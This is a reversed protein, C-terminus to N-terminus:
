RGSKSAVAREIYAAAYLIIAYLIPRVVHWLSPPRGDDMFKEVAFIGYGMLPFVIAYCLVLKGLKHKPLPPIYRGLFFYGLLAPFIVGAVVDLLHYEVLLHRM